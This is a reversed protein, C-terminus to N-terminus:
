EGCFDWVCRCFSQLNRCSIGREGGLRAPFRFIVKTRPAEAMKRLQEAAAKAVDAREAFRAADFTGEARSIVRSRARSAIAAARRQEQAELM